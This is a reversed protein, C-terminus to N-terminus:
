RSRAHTKAGRYAAWKNWHIVSSVGTPKHIWFYFMQDADLLLSYGDPMKQFGLSSSVDQCGTELLWAYDDPHSM